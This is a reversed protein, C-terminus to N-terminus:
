RVKNKMGNPWVFYPGEPVRSKMMHNLRLVTWVAGKGRHPPAGRCFDAGGDRPSVVWPLRLHGIAAVLM